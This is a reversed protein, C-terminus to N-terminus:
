AACFQGYTFHKARLRGTKPEASNEYDTAFPRLIDRFLVLRSVPRCERKHPGVSAASLGWSHFAAWGFRLLLLSFREDPHDHTGGGVPFRHLVGRFDQFLQSYREFRPHYGRM